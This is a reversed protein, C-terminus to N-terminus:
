GAELEACRAYLLAILDESDNECNILAGAREDLGEAVSSELSEISAERAEMSEQPQGGPFFSCVETILEKLKHAGIEELAVALSPADSGCPNAIYQWLGGNQVQYFFYGVLYNLQESRSCSLLGVKEVKECIQFHKSFLWKSYDWPEWASVPKELFGYDDGCAGCKTGSPLGRAGCNECELEM